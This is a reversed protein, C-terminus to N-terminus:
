WVTNSNFPSRPSMFSNPTQLMGTVNSEKCWSVGTFHWWWCKQLPHFLFPFRGPSPGYTWSMVGLIVFSVVVLKCLFIISSIPSKCRYQKTGQSIKKLNAMTPYLRSPWGQSLSLSPSLCYYLHEKSVSSRLFDHLTFSGTYKKECWFPNKECLFFLLPEKIWHYM